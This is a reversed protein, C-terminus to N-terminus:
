QKPLKRFKLFVQECNRQFGYVELDCDGTGGSVKIELLTQGSSVIFTYLKNSDKSGSIGTLATGSKSSLERLGATQRWIPSIATTTM